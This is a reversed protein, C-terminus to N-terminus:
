ARHAAFTGVCIHTLCLHRYCLTCLFHVRVSPKLWVLEHKSLDVPAGRAVESQGSSVNAKRKGKSGGSGAGGGVKTAGIGGKGGSKGGKRGMTQRTPFRSGRVTTRRRCRFFLPPPKKLLFRPPINKFDITTNKTLTLPRRVYRLVRCWISVLSWWVV